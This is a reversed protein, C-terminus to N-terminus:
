PDFETHASHHRSGGTWLADKSQAAKLRKIRVPELSLAGAVADLGDDRGSSGPRWERMESIFPTDCVSEHVSLARAALVADFAEIIRIHKPRRNAIELVARNMKKAALERRLIGPLFRGIGNIELALAPLYLTKMLEAVVRCQQSAEDDQTDSRATIYSMHHLVYRGSESTFVAAFVSSDGDSRGFSPDWWASASVLREDGLYLYAEGGQQKYVLEDSYIRLNDPDLRGNAINVPRLMMQSAFKNPGTRKQIREIDSEDFRAPWVSENGANLVPIELRKFGKLFAREEGIDKRKRRAYITYYNHPTGIYLQTGGPVLVYDIEGLRARLEERKEPTDCTNPVEVDDCIVIDARSGTINTTIGKALMSPDRLEAARKVTFRDSAWQDPGDPKLTLTLPHREIIRKVNRVMKRALVLDAALVLIRLDPNTYLLWACYLGAITSKGGGRFAMLLLRRDGNEWSRALWGAMQFHIDPTDQGQIQNWLSLFLPFSIAQTMKM